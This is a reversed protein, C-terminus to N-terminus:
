FFKSFFNKKKPPSLVKRVAEEFLEKLGKQELASCEMYKIAGIDKAMASGQANSIPALGSEKLRKM